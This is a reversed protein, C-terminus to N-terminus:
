ANVNRSTIVLAQIGQRLDKSIQAQIAKEDAENTQGSNQLQSQGVVSDYDKMDVPEGLTVVAEINAMRYYHLLNRVAVVPKFVMRIVPVYQLSEFILQSKKFPVKFGAVDRSLLYSMEVMTSLDDAKLYDKPYTTLHIMDALVARDARTSPYQEELTKAAEQSAEKTDDNEDDELAKIEARKNKILGEIWRARIDLPIDNTNVSADGYTAELASLVLGVMGELKDCANDPLANVLVSDLNYLAQYRQVRENTMAELVTQIRQALPTDQTQHLGSKKELSKIGKQLAKELKEPNRYRYHIGVPQIKVPKSPDQKWVSRAIKAAGAKFDLVVGNTNSVYGEPFMVLPIGSDRVTTIASDFTGSKDKAGRDVSFVGLGQMSKRTVWGFRDFEKKAAMSAFTLGNNEFGEAMTIFDLIMSHNPTIIFREGNAIRQKLQDLAEMDIRVDFRLLGAAAKAIRGGAGLIFKNPKAPYFEKKKELDTIDSSDTRGAFYPASPNLKTANRAQVQPAQVSLTSTTQIVVNTGM